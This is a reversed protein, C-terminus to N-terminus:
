NRKRILYSALGAFPTLREAMTAGRDGLLIFQWVSYLASDVIFAWFVRDTNFMLKFYEIREEIGGVEERATLAWGFSLVGVALSTLGIGQAFSPLPPAPAEDDPSPQQARVALFPIFFVNTLFQISVVWAEKFKMGASRQDSLIVPVFMLSWANIFNFLGEYVPHDPVSPVFSLGLDNLAINVYFYNLSLNLVQQLEEPSIQTAPAGPAQDGFLVYSSYALYFIWLFVPAPDLKPASSTSGVTPVFNLIKLAFLNNPKLPSEVLDRATLIQGKDNVTHFSCGRSFPFEVGDKELHWISGCAREDGAVDDVVFKVGPPFTSLCEKFFAMAKPRGKFPEDFVAMDHYSVDEALVKELQELDGNNYADYFKVLVESATVKSPKRGQFISLLPNDERKARCKIFQGRNLRICQFRTSQSATARM